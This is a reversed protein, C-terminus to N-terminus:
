GEAEQWGRDWEPREDEHVGFPNSAWDTGAEYARAGAEYAATLLEAGTLLTDM